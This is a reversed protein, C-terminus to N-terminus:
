SPRRETNKKTKVQQAEREQARPHAKRWVDMLHTEDALTYVQTTSLSAHGLLEQIARLDAGGQMLHTAFAHRLAHPTASDPLGQLQRWQRMARQAVGPNLRGGRAGCFLPADPTPSPHVARWADLAKKVAPLLPAYREKGGKGKILLAEGGARGLDGVNLNLAESIRLGAGYLLTFLAEDRLAAPVTQAQESIGEPARRAEAPGLPRPLRQKLRPGRLLGIAANSVGYERALYTFFSRCSSLRRARSRALSEPSAARHRKRAREEGLAADHALWARFDALKLGALASLPFEGGLHGRFFGLAQAVDHRYAEVTRASARKEYALWDTWALLAKEAPQLAQTRLSDHPSPPSSLSLTM